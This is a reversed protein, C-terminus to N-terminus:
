INRNRLQRKHQARLIAYHDAGQRMLDLDGELDAINKLHIDRQDMDRARYAAERKEQEKEIKRITIEYPTKVGLFDKVKDSMSPNDGYPLSWNSIYKDPISNKVDGIRKYEIYQDIYSPDGGYSDIFVQAQEVEGKDILYHIKDLFEPPVKSSDPDPKIRVEDLVASLEEKIIRKLTEKTLKM